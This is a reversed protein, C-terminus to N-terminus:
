HEQTTASPGGGAGEDDAHAAAEHAHANAGIPLRRVIMLVLFGVALGVIASALTNVTWGLVGGVGAIDHV